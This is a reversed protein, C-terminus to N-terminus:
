VAIVPPHEARLFFIFNRVLIAATNPTNARSGTPETGAL